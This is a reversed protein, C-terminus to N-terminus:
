SAYLLYIATLIITHTISNFIKYYKINILLQRLKNNTFLKQPMKQTANDSIETSHLQNIVLQWNM